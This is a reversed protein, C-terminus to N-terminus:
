IWQARQFQKKLVDNIITKHTTKNTRGSDILSKQKNNALFTTEEVWHTFDALVDPVIEQIPEAPKPAKVTPKSRKQKTPM